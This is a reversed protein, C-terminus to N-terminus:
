APPSAPATAMTETPGEANPIQAEVERIGMEAAMLIAGIKKTSLQDIEDRPLDPCVRAVIDCLTHVTNADALEPQEQIQQIVRYAAADLHHVAVERGNVRIRVAVDDIADIDIVRNTRSAPFPAGVSPKQDPM